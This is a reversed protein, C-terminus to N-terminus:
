GLFEAVASEVLARAGAAVAPDPDAVQHTIMILAKDGAYPNSSRLFSRATQADYAGAVRSAAGYLVDIQDCVGGPLTPQASLSRTVRADRLGLGVSTIREGLWDLCWEVKAQPSLSEAGLEKNSGAM